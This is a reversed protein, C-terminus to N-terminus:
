VKEGKVEELGELGRRARLDVAVAFGEGAEEDDAGTEALELAGM